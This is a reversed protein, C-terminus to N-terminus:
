AQHLDRYIAKMYKQNKVSVRGVANIGKKNLAKADLVEEKLSDQLSDVSKKTAVNKIDDKVKELDKVTDAVDGVKKSISERSKKADKIRDAIDELGDELPKLEKKMDTKTGGLKSIAKSIDETEKKIDKM